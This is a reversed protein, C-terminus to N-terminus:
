AALALESMSGTPPVAASAPPYGLAVLWDTPANLMGSLHLPSKGKHVGRRFVRHNHWVALLALMGSTLTRDVALHVRLISHWREVASSVRVADDWAALLVRAAARWDEPIAAVIERSSWGLLHRRLWAWGLLVQHAGPLVAALDQQVRELHPVFTLLQPLAATLRAHLRSVDDRQPAPATASVEGLLALLTDLEAQRGAADLLGHRAVIVVDLLRRLEQMLYRVAEAV